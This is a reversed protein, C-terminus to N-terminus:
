APALEILPTMMFFVSRGPRPMARPFLTRSSRMSKGSRSQVLERATAGQVYPPLFLELSDISLRGVPVGRVTLTRRGGVTAQRIQGSPLLGVDVLRHRELWDRLAEYLNTTMRMRGVAAFGTIWITSSEPRVEIRKTIM